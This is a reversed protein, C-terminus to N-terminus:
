SAKVLYNFLTTVISLNYSSKKQKIYEALTGRIGTIGSSGRLDAGGLRSAVGPAAGRARAARPGRVSPGGPGPGVGTSPSPPDRVMDCGSTRWDSAGPGGPSPTRVGFTPSERSGNLRTAM